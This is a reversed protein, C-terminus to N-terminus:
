LSSKLLELIYKSEVDSYLTPYQEKFVTADIQKYRITKKAILQQLDRPIDQGQIRLYYYESYQVVRYSISPKDVGYFILYATDITKAYQRTSVLQTNIPVVGWVSDYAAGMTAPRVGIFTIKM